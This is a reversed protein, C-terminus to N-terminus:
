SIIGNGMWNLSCALAVIVVLRRRNGRTRLFDLFSAKRQVVEREIATCIEKMELQVLADEKDGNAHLSALVGVAEEERGNKMLWQVIM